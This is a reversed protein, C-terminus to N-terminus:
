SLDSFPGQRSLPPWALDRDSICAAPLPWAIKLAPDDYRFGCSLAPDYAEGMLYEVTAVSSLCQFGHAFGAPIYLMTPDDEALEVEVVDSRSAVLGRLDVTVDHIRGRTCRVVKADPKPMRQFHMGRLTGRGRTISVNAQVPTFSLGAKRFEDECWVRAFSGRQDSLPELRILRAGSTGISEFKM